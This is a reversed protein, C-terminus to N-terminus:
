SLLAPAPPVALLYVNTGGCAAVLRGDPLPALVTVRSPMRAVLMAPPVAAAHSSCAAAAPRTDWVWVAADRRDGTAGVLRGDPLAALAGVGGPGPLVAVCTRSGVDWLRVTGDLSGSALRGDALVALCEVGPSSHDVLTAVLKHAGVDWLWVANDHKDISALSGGPLEALAVVSITHVETFTASVASANVDVIRVKRDGCAAALHGSRLVALARVGTACAVTARHLPPMHAVDWVEIGGERGFADYTGIALRRGDPLAALAHVARGSATEILALDAAEGERGADWLRVESGGASTLRGDPLVALAVVEDEHGRLVGAAPATCGRARCAALATPSLDTDCSHLARLARLHGLPAARTVRCCADMRLEILGAPLSAVTGDGIGTDSLDLVQLSLLHSLTAAPTLNGCEHIYLSVLSPPLCALTADGILGGSVVLTRLARLHAFTTAPTFVPSNRVNLELLGPPLSALTRDDLQSAAARLVRLQPLHALSVGAPWIAMVLEQLSPPLTAVTASSMRSKGFGLFSLVRLATLHRFSATPAIACFDICLETLSPPLGSMREAIVDTVTCDLVQLGTLHRFSTKPTLCNCHTVNLVRLSPPLRSLAADNLTRCRQCDLHVLGALAAAIHAVGRASVRSDWSLKAATAAPLAARWAVIDAVPTVADNWPLSAVAGAIAPHLRRLAGTDDTALCAFVMVGTVSNGALLRVLAPLEAEAEPAAAGGGGTPASAGGRRQRVRRGDSGHADAM